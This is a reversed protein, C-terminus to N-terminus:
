CYKMSPPLNLLNQFFYPLNYTVWIVLWCPYTSHNLDTQFVRPFLSSFLQTCLLSIVLFCYYPFVHPFLHPYLLSYTDFIFPFAVQPSFTYYIDINCMHLFIVTCLFLFMPFIFMYFQPIRYHLFSYLFVHLCVSFFSFSQAFYAISKGMLIPMCCVFVKICGVIAYLDGVFSYDIANNSITPM